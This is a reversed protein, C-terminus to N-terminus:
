ILAARGDILPPDPYPPSAAACVATQNAPLQM